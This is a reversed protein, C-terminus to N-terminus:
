FWQWQHVNEAHQVRAAVFAADLMQVFWFIPIAGWAIFLLSGFLLSVVPANRFLGGIIPGAFGVAFLGPFSLFVFVSKANQRNYWQGAGPLILSFLIAAFVSHTATMQPPSQAQFMQTQMPPVFATRYVHGCKGCSGDALAAPTGCSPCQKYPQSM